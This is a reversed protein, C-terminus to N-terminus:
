VHYEHFVNLSCWHALTLPHNLVLTGPFFSTSRNRHKLLHLINTVSFVLFLNHVIPAHSSSRYPLTVGRRLISPRSISSSLIHNVQGHSLISPVSHQGALHLRSVGAQASTENELHKQTGIEGRRRRNMKDRTFVGFSGRQFPNVM